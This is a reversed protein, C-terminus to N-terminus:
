VTSVVIHAEDTTPLVVPKGAHGALDLNQESVAGTDDWGLAVSIVADVGPVSTIISAIELYRVVTNNVFTIPHNPNDDPTCAWHAPNLYFLLANNINTIVDAAIYGPSLQFGSVVSVQQIVADDTNVIFNTERMADLYAELDAQVSDSVPQGNDDLAFVCVMRENNYTGDEPNYLDLTYARQVGPVNVALLSFDSALIPTPTIAQLEDSLRNLYDDDSEPDQGGTIEGVQVVNDVWLFPDLLTLAQGDSGAGNAYVGPQVAAVPVQGSTAPAAMILDQMTSLLISNGNVDTTVLQTNAPITHGNGDLLNFQVMGVASIADIPPINFLFAGLYRFITKPVQTALSQIDSAESAFAEIIWTDLNGEAPVWGPIQQQLYDFAQQMLQQPDTPQPYTIYGVQSSM